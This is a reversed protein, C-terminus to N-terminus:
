PEAQNSATEALDGLLLLYDGMGVTGDCDLDYPSGTGWDAIIAIFLLNDGSNLADLFDHIDVVGDCNLDSSTDFDWDALLADIESQADVEALDGAMMLFDGIGVTGDCDLDFSTDYGWSTIVHILLLDDGGAVAVLYDHIDVTGDCNLDASTDLGWVAFLDDFPSGPEVVDRPDAVDSCTPVPAALLSRTGALVVCAALVTTLRTGTTNNTTGTM